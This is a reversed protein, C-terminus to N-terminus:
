FNMWLCEVRREKKKAQGAHNAVEKAVMNWGKYHKAYLNSYYGSLVIKGKAEKLVESLLLHEGETMEVSYAKPVSRTSPLYPPDCYFLTDASDVEHVLDIVHQNRIEVDKLRECIRPLHYLKFTDFANVDGPKGGRKRNSWGFSNKLGGRSMRRIILENVAGDLGTHDGHFAKKYNEETYEIDAIKAMFKEPENKLYYLLNYLTIDLDNYIESKSRIKNLLLSGAGGCTEVYKM